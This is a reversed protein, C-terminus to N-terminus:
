RAAPQGVTPPTARAHHRVVREQVNDSSSCSISYASARHLVPLRSSLAKHVQLVFQAPTSKFLAAECGSRAPKSPMGRQAHSGRRRRVFRDLLVRRISEILRTNATNGHM